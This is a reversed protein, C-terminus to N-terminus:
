FCKYQIYVNKIVGVCLNSAMNNNSVTFTCNSQNACRNQIISTLDKACNINGSLMGYIANSIILNKNNNNCSLTANRDQIFTSLTLKYPFLDEIFVFIFFFLRDFVFFKMLTSFKKVQVLLAIFQIQGFAVVNNM